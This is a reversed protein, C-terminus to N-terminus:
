AAEGAAAVVDYVLGSVATLAATRASADGPSEVLIAVVYPPRGPLFVLGADHSVFSIDGTKHAVRAAARVPEPLGPGIGGAFEQAMLIDIMARSSEASFGRGERIARLLDVIGNATVQNNVGADFAKEDEVGRRVDVGAVARAALAARAQEVGVLDLLLNAALNSSRVIMHRALDGVRMTRGVAGYVEDDADRAPDVRFARGDVVSVFRNRVHLRSELQFRDREVADFVAAMIALKITSAAHFWRDGGVQWSLGSLYDFASVGLVGGGLDRAVDAARAALQGQLAEVRAGM